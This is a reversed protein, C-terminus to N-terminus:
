YTIKTLESSQLYTFHIDARGAVLLHNQEEGTFYHPDAQYLSVHPFAKEFTDVLEHALRYRRAKYESIFNMAFVGNRKLRKQYLAIAQKSVLERPITFGSFADVIILDYRKKTQAIYEAGDGIYVNLRKSEPLDFYDRSIKVLLPDIEVVDLTLKPFRHFAAIPLMFAGGGIVLVRKPNLSAMIEFFRQNYDFLLEPEDDKAVGSQASGKSGFLVRAPRNNYTTDIVKYSGFASSATYLVTDKSNKNLM